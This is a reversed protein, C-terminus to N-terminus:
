WLQPSEGLPVQLLALVRKGRRDTLHPLLRTEITELQHRLQAGDIPVEALPLDQYVLEAGEEKHARIPAVRGRLDGLSDSLALPEWQLLRHAADGVLVRPRHDSGCKLVQFHLYRAVRRLASAPWRLGRGHAM